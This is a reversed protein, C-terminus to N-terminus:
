STASAALIKGILVIAAASILTSVNSLIATLLKGIDPVVSLSGAVTALAVAMVLFLLRDSDGIGLFGLALGLIVLAFEAYPVNIFAAVVGLALGAILVIKKATMTNGRKTMSLVKQTRARGQIPWAIRHHRRALVHGLARRASGMGPCGLTARFWAVRSHEIFRDVDAQGCSFGSRDDDRALPRIEVTKAM